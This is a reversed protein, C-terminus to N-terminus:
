DYECVCKEQRCENCEGPYKQWVLEDVDIPIDRVEGLKTCFGMFQAFADASEDRVGRDNKHRLERSTEAVEEVFHSWVAALVQIKNVRGYIRSYMAQWERVSTPKRQIDRRHATLEPNEPDYVLDETLCGCRYERLCYPCIDPYKFWAAEAIDVGIRNWLGMLWGYLIPLLAQMENIREKRLLEEMQGIKEWIQAQIDHTSYIADNHEGYIWAFMDQQERLSCPRVNARVLM